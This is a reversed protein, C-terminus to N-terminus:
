ELRFIRRLDEDNELHEITALKISHPLGLVERIFKIQKVCPYAHIYVSKQMRFFGMSKLLDLLKHRVRDNGSAIDFIVMRWKGDWSSQQEVSMNELDYKMVETKGKETLVVIYGEAMDKVDVFGKRWLKIVAREVSSPYYRIFMRSLPTQTALIRITESGEITARLKIGANLMDMLIGQSMHEKSQNLKKRGRM